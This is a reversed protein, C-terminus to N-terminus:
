FEYIVKISPDKMKSPIYGIAGEVNLVFLKISKFSSQTLPPTTGQFHKKTWYRNLRSKNMKLVKKEFLDRSSQPALINIPLVKIDKFFQHKKLYINKLEKASIQSVPSNKNVIMIYDSAYLIHSYLIFLFLTKM